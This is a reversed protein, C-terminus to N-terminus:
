NVPVNVNLRNQNIITGEMTPFCALDLVRGPVLHRMAEKEFPSWDEFAAFYRKVHDMAEIYGDEREIIEFVEKGRHFDMLM